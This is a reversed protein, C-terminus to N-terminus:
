TRQESRPLMRELLGDRWYFQHALAGLVHLTALALLLNGLTEHLEGMPNESKEGDSERSVAAEEGEAPADRQRAGATTEVPGLPVEWRPLSLAGFFSVSAGQASVALWGSIPLAFLLLYLAVHTGRALLRNARSLSSPLAPGPRVLAWAIRAVAVLMVLVGLSSHWFFSRSGPEDAEIGSKGTVILAIVLVVTAWHLWRATASYREPSERKASM